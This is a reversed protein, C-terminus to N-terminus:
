RKAISYLTELRKFTEDNESKGADDLKRRLYRLVNKYAIEDRKRLESFGISQSLLSFKMQTWRTSDDIIRELFDEDYGHLEQLISFITSIYDTRYKPDNYMREFERQWKKSIRETVIQGYKDIIINLFQIHLKAHPDDSFKEPILLDLVKEIRDKALSWEYETLKSLQSQFDSLMIKKTTTDSVQQVAEFANDFGKIVNLYENRRQRIPRQRAEWWDYVLNSLLLVGWATFVIGISIAFTKMFYFILSAQPELPESPAITVMSIILFPSFIIMGIAMEWIERRKEKRISLRLRSLLGKKKISSMAPIKEDKKRLGHVILGFGAVFVAVLIGTIIQEVASMLDLIAGVSYLILVALPVAVLIILGSIVEKKSVM